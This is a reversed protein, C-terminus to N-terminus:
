SGSRVRLRDTHFRWGLNKCRQAPGTESRRDYLELNFLGPRGIFRWNQFGSHASPVPGQREAGLGLPIWGDPLEITLVSTEDGPLGLAFGKWRFRQRARLEWDLIITRERSPAAPPDLWLVTQGSALAGVISQEGPRDLIM